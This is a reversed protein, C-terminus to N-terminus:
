STAKRTRSLKDARRDLEDAIERVVKGVREYHSEIQAQSAGDPPDLFRSDNSIDNLITTALVRLYEAKLERHSPMRQKM